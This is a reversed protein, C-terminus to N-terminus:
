RRHYGSTFIAEPLTADLDISQVVNEGTKRGGSFYEMRYTLVFGNVERYDTYRYTIRDAGSRPEEVWRQEEGQHTLRAEFLLHTSRDIAAVWVDNWARGTGEEASIRVLDLERGELTERGVYCAKMGPDSWKFPLSRLYYEGHARYYGENEAAADTRPEGHTLAFGREGDHGFVLIGDPRTKVLLTKLRGEADRLLYEDYTEHGLTTDREAVIHWSVIADFRERGGHAEISRNLIAEGEDASALFVTSLLGIWLLPPTM